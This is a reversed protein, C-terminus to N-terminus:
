AAENHQRQSEWIVRFLYKRKARYERRKNRNLVAMGARREARVYGYTHLYARRVLPGNDVLPRSDSNGTQVYPVMPDASRAKRWEDFRLQARTKRKKAKANSEEIRVTARKMSLKRAEAAEDQRKTM